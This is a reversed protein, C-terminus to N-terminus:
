DTALAHLIAGIEDRVALLQSPEVAIQRRPDPMLARARDLAARGRAALPGPVGPQALARDLMALYDYDELGERTQEWRLSDVPGTKGPYLAMAEGIEFVTSWPMGKNGWNNITWVFYGVMGAQWTSWPLARHTVIPAGICNDSQNYWWFVEGRARGAAISKASFDGAPQGVYDVPPCWANLAGVLPAMNRACAPFVRIEPISRRIIQTCRRVVPIRKHDPEDFVYCDMGDLWGRKMLHLRAQRLYDSLAREFEPTGEQFGLFPYVKTHGGGRKGYPLKGHRLGLEDFLFQCTEDFATWDATVKGDVLSLKPNAPIAGFGSVKHEALDRYYARWHKRVAPGRWLQYWTRLSTVRPLTFAWVTIQLRTRAIERGDEHLVVHGRYTGPAADPGPALTIWIPANHGAPVRGAPSDFVPDEVHGLIRAKAGYFRDTRLHDSGRPIEAVFVGQDPEPLGAREADTTRRVLVHVPYRVSVRAPLLRGDAGRLETCSATVAGLPKVAHMALHIPEVEGRALALRVRDGAETPPAAQLPITESPSAQWLVFRGGRVLTRGARRFPQHRPAFFSRAPHGSKALRACVARAAASARKAPSGDLPAIWVESEIKLGPELPVRGFQGRDTLTFQRRDARYLHMPRRPFIVVAGRGAEDFGAMWNGPLDMFAKFPFAATSAQQGHDYACRGLGPGFKVEQFRSGHHGMGKRLCIVQRHVALAPGEWQYTHILRFDGKVYDVRLRDRSADVSEWQTPAGLRVLTADQPVTAMPMVALDTQVPLVQGGPGVIQGLEFDDALSFEAKYGNHELVIQEAAPPKGRASEVLRVGDLYFSKGGQGDGPVHVRWTIWQVKRLDGGLDTMPWDLYVEFETWRAQQSREALVPAIWTLHRWDSDTINVQVVRSTELGGYLRFRIKAYRTLDPQPPAVRFYVYGKKTEDVDCRVATKGEVPPPPQAQSVRGTKVAVWRASEDLDQARGVGSVAVVLVLPWVAARCM